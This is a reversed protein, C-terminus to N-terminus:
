AAHDDEHNVANRTAGVLDQIRPLAAALLGNIMGNTAGGGSNNGESGGGYVVIQPVVPQHGTGIAEFLRTAIQEALRYEAGGYADVQKKTASANAEGVASIRSAEGNGEAILRDREADATVRIEQAKKEARALSASAENQNVRIAIESETLPKQMAATARAQNLDKEKDAADQQSKYTEIQEKAIQRERLQTLIKEITPDGEPARPTGILVEELKLSYNDFKTGMAKNAAAQIESRKQLLEILTQKQGIDKFYASIMPDLTQEVLKRVDGFRQIVEPARKYDIHIVVSLPLLPEFADATILSIESLNEDLKHGGAAGRVWKLVFNTTPVREIKGAYTNFAYKGPLLPEKWVGRENTGVLEGHRYADGSVDTGLKGTYSVVVGVTGVEIIEKKVYEVTAFLRNIYYTGDVLVQLQRGRNGGAHLFKEPDQFNNHFSKVDSSDTGKVPAIIEGQPLSPGDHITVIGIQDETDKIVVPTFGKRTAIAEQMVKLTDREEKSLSLAYLREGTIVVFQALNVAYTGERLIRRQPGKQGGNALFKRVDQFDTINENSALTQSPELPLGDRAFVYGIQGQNITVLPEMHIRYMFPTFFHLGGRLIDPQYGAEGKLAILGSQISKLAWKKELVGIKNNPIYRAMGSVFFLFIFAVIGGLVPILTPLLSM